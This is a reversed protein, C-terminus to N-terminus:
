TALWMTAFIRHFWLLILCRATCRPVKM